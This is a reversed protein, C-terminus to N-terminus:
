QSIYLHEVPVLHHYIFAQEWDNVPLVPHEVTKGNIEASATIQLIMPNSEMKGNMKIVFNKSNEDPGIKGDGSIVFNASDKPLTLRIPGRYGEKRFVRVQIQASKNRFRLSSPLICVDFDPQPRSVRLRYYCDIGSHRSRNYIRVIYKGTKQLHVMLFSDSHHTEQGINPGKSDARDDNMLLLNGDPAYLELVSDMTSGLEQAKVDLVLWDDRKCDLEYQDVENPSNIRGYVVMPVPLPIPKNIQPHSPKPASDPDLLLDWLRSDRKPAVAQYIPLTEVVYKIPRILGTKKVLDITRVEEYAVKGTFDPYVIPEPLNEGKLYISLSDNVPGGLPYHAYVLPFAGVALRYVFDNRGRFISDRVELIYEGTYPPQFVLLPNQDFKWSDASCLENNLADYVTLVPTFWGPVANAIYPELSRAQLDMIIRQGQRARIHFRDIDGPKIQGNFVVPLKQVPLFVYEKFRNWWDKWIPSHNPEIENVEKADSIWFWAARSVKGGALVYLERKGPKANAGITFKVILTSNYATSARRDFNFALYEYYVLQLDELTPNRLRHFYAGYSFFEEDSPIEVGRKDFPEKSRKVEREMRLARRGAAMKKPDNRYPLLKEEEKLMDRFINMFRGNQIGAEWFNGWRPQVIIETKVDGGSVWVQKANGLQSGAILVELSTGRQGGAPYVYAITQGYLPLDSLILILSGLLIFAFFIKKDLRVEAKSDLSSLSQLSIRFVLRFLAFFVPLTRARIM